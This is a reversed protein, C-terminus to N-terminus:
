GGSWGHAGGVCGGVGGGGLRSSTGLSSRFQELSCARLCPHQAPLGGPHDIRIHPTRQTLPVPVLRNVTRELLRELPTRNPSLTNFTYFYLPLFFFPFFRLLLVLFCFFRLLPSFYFLHLVLGVCFFCLLGRFFFLCWLMGVEDIWRWWVM